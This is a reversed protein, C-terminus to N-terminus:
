QLVTNATLIVDKLIPSEQNLKWMYDFAWSINIPCAFAERAEEIESPGEMGVVKYDWLRLKTGIIPATEALAMAAEVGLWLAGEGNSHIAFVTHTGLIRFTYCAQNDEYGLRNAISTVQFKMGHSKVVLAPRVGVDRMKIRYISEITIDSPTSSTTPRWVKNRLTTEGLTQPQSFQTRLIQIISGKIAIPHMARSCVTDLLDSPVLQVIEPPTDSSSDDPPCWQNQADDSVPQSNPM